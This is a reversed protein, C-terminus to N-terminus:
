SWIQIKDNACTILRGEKVVTIDSLFKNPIPINYTQQYNGNNDIIYENAIDYECGIYVKNQNVFIKKIEYSIFISKISKFNKYDYIEVKNEIGILLYNDDFVSLINPENNFKVSKEINKFIETEYFELKDETLLAM